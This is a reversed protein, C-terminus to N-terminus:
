WNIHFMDHYGTIIGLILHSYEPNSKLKIHQEVGCETICFLEPLGMVNSKLLIFSAIMSQMSHVYKYECTYIKASFHFAAFELNNMAYQLM